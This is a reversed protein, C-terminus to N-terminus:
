AGRKPPFPAPPPSGAGCRGSRGLLPVAQSLALGRGGGLSGTGAFPVSGAALAADPSPPLGARGHVVFSGGPGGSASCRERVQRAADLYSAPLVALTGALDVDPANIEVSGQISTASSAQLISDPSAFFAEAVIRLNGGPGGQANAIMTAGDFVVLPPDLTVNGGRGQGGLVTATVRADRLLILDGARIEIDGGDARDAQTTILASEAVFEDAAVLTVSGADFDGESLASIESGPGLRVDDADIRVDGGTVLRGLTSVLANHAEFRDGARIAVDGAAGAPLTRSFSGALISARGEAADSGALRVRSADIAVGGADGPGVSLAEIRGGDEVRLSAAQIRVSGARGTAGAGLFFPDTRVSIKSRAADLAGQPNGAQSGGLLLERLRQSVGSISLERAEVEVDGGSGPGFTEAAIRGADRLEVQDAVVRIRGGNGGNPYAQSALASVLFTTDGGEGIPRPDFGAVLLSGARVLVDGGDGGTAVPDVEGPAGAAASLIGGDVLRVADAHIELRGGGGPGRSDAFISGGTAVEVLGADIRLDGANSAPGASGTAFTASRLNGRDAVRVTGARVQVDGVDRRQAETESGPDEDVNGEFSFTGVRAGRTIELLGADIHLDGGAGTPGNGMSVFIGGPADAVHLSDRAEITLDGGRGPGFTPTSIEGGRMVVIRGAEIDVSGGHGGSTFSGVSTFASAEGGDVLLSGARLLLDGSRALAPDSPRVQPASNTGLFSGDLVEVGGRAVVRVDGGRGTGAGVPATLVGAGGSVRLGEVEIEVDGGRGSGATQSSVDRNRPGTVVLQGARIRIDGADGAGTASAVVPSDDLAITGRAELDVALGPHDRDPHTSDITSALVSSSATIRGGRVLITGSVGDPRRRTTITTANRIEVEGLQPFSAVDLVPDAASGGFSAGGASRVSALDIRGGPAALTSADLSVGAVADDALADGGVLRLTEGAPVSLSTGTVSLPAPPGGLFGFATPASTALLEEGAPPAAAFATEGDPFRIEDASTVHFSGGVDLRAGPGFLVGNPNMLWVDAGPITSRLTGHIESATRGTVRSIVNTVAPADQRLGQDTFTATQGAGIGFREFSHFLNRGSQRGLEPTILYDVAHGRPDTGPPVVEGRGAGLTQDRVVLGQSGAGPAQARSLVPWGLVLAAAGSLLLVSLPFRHM